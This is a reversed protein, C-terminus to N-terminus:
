WTTWGFFLPATEFDARHQIGKPSLFRMFLIEEDHRQSSEPTDGLFTVATEMYTWGCRLYFGRLDPACWFMGVDADPQQDIYETASQIIRLGNGQGRYDPYVFVASIGYPKYVVGNHQWDMWLVEAHAVVFDDDTLVFHVPHFEPRSIWRRGRWRGVFGETEWVRMFSLIQWRLAPPLDDPAYQHIEM